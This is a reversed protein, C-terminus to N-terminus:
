TELTVKIEEMWGIVEMHHEIFESHHNIQNKLRQIRSDRQKDILERNHQEYSTELGMYPSPSVESEIRDIRQSLDSIQKKRWNILDYLYDIKENINEMDVM